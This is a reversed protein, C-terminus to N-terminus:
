LNRWAERAVLPPCGEEKQLFWDEEIHFVEWLKMQLLQELLQLNNEDSDVMVMKTAGLGETITKGSYGLMVSLPRHTSIPRYLFSLIECIRETLLILYM